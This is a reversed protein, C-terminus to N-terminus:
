FIIWCYVVIFMFERIYHFAIKNVLHVMYIEIVIRIRYIQYFSLVVVITLTLYKCIVNNYPLMVIVHVNICTRYLM